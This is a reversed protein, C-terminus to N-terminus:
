SKLIELAKKYKEVNEPKPNQSLNHTIDAIKVERAIADQRVTWIYRGYDEDKQKTLYCVAALTKPSFGLDALIEVGIETDEIVDHLWAAPKAPDSVMSAVAEPHTHYPTVGDRRFQGAHAVIAVIRALKIQNM